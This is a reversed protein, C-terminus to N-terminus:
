KCCRYNWRGYPFFHLSRSIQLYKMWYMNPWWSSSIMRFITQCTPVTDTQKSLWEEFLSGESRLLSLQKFNSNSEDGDGRLPLGQRALFKTNELITLFIKRNGPKRSAHSPDLQEGIDKTQKPLIFLTKNAEKHYESKAHSWIKSLGDKWNSFGTSLQL